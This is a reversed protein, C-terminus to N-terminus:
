RNKRFCDLIVFSKIRVARRAKAPETYEKEMVIDVGDDDGVESRLDKTRLAPVAPAAAAIMAGVEARATRASGVAVTSVLSKISASDPRLYLTNFSPVPAMGAWPCVTLTLVNRILISVDIGGRDNLETNTSRFSGHIGHQVFCM